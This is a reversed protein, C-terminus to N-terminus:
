GESQTQLITKNFNFVTVFFYIAYIATYAEMWIIVPILFDMMLLNSTAILAVTGHSLGLLLPVAFVVGIQERVTKRMDKNTVGLKRLINYKEKDEEAETLMKFFIISGTAVLFVLGLFSGVFLLTGSSEIAKKYNATASSFDETTAALEDSIELQNKFDDMQVAQILKEDADLQDYPDNAMVIASGGLTEINFLADTYFHAVTYDEDNITIHSLKEDWQENFLVDIMFIEDSKLSRAQEWDLNNTLDRFAQENIVTYEKEYTDHEIRVTKSKFSTQSQIQESDITQEDGQWMFTYPAFQQVDKEANYYVGFVAGGATITTASLVTIITLTKANGKIRYLLQSATMMHLGRWAWHPNNKLRTLIYVLVSNFLLYSGLITLGIIIMPTMLGFVQWISSDVIPQLAIFYGAALSLIGLSATILNAKPLVEGQKDAVFLDILKFQYIMRYGMLSTIFFIVIFVISTEVFAETSFTFSTVISLGMLKLLLALLVRSLLFGFLVGIILSFLGIVLNEFFLLLGISQKRVGLLSYLAVEKKRKKMFFSNSYFIFLAVFIMLVFASASMVGKLQNSTESMSSINESHKLTAFTFYIIISFITSGIYLSYNKMNRRINKFALSFLTM